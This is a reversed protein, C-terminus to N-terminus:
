YIYSTDPLQAYTKTPQTKFKDAKWHMLIDIQPNQMNSKYTFSLGIQVAFIKLVVDFSCAQVSWCHLGVTNHTRLSKETILKTSFRHRKTFLISHYRGRTQSISKLKNKWPKMTVLSFMRQQWCIKYFLSTSMQNIQKSIIIFLTHLLLQFWIIECKFSMWEKITSYITVEYLTPICINQFIHIPDDFVVFNNPLSSCGSITIVLVWGNELLENFAHLLTKQWKEALSSSIMPIILWLVM